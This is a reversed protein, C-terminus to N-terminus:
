RDSVVASYGYVNEVVVETDSNVEIKKLIKQFCRKFGSKSNNM